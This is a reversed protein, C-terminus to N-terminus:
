NRASMDHMENYWPLIRSIPFFNFDRCWSDACGVHLCFELVVGDAIQFEFRYGNRITVPDRGNECHACVYRPHTM